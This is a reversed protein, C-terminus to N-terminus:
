SSLLPWASSFMLFRVKRDGPEQEYYRISEAGGRQGIGSAFGEAANGRLLLLTVDDPYRRLAEDLAAVYQDETGGSQERRIAQLQKDRLEIRLRERKGATSARQKAQQEANEAAQEDGMGGFAYSLGLYAMALKPDRRLAEHFSQAARIWDYSYLLVLGQDYYAQAERFDTTVEEHTSGLAHLYPIRLELLAAPITTKERDPNPKHECGETQASAPVLLAFSVLVLAVVARFGNQSVDKRLRV